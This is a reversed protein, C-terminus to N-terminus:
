EVVEVESCLGERQTIPNNLHKRMRNYGDMIAYFDEEVSEADSKLVNIKMRKKLTKIESKIEALETNEM